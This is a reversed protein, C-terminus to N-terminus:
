KGKYDKPLSQLFINLAYWFAVHWSLSMAKGRGIQYIGIGLLSVVAAVPIDADGGTFEKVKNNMSKFTESITTSLTTGRLSSLKNANALRFLNNTEAYKLISKQGVTHVFLASGTVSNVELREIGKYRSFLNKLSLFYSADGEKSPIKIRLRQSTQHSIHAAPVNSM